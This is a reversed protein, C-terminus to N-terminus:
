LPLDETTYGAVSWRGNTQTLAMHVNRATEGVRLRTGEPTEWHWTMRHSRYVTTVTDAPMAESPGPAGAKPVSVAHQSALQVWLGQSANREPEVIRAALEETMLPKARVAAATETRDEDVSWTVVLKAFAQAVATPDSRDVNLRPAVAANLAVAAAPEAASPRPSVAATQNQVPPPDPATCGALLLAALPILAM